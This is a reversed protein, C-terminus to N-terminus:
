RRDDVDGFFGNPLFNAKEGESLCNFASLSITSGVRPVPDMPPLPDISSSADTVHVLGTSAGSTACGVDGEGVTVVLTDNFRARKATATPDLPDKPSEEPASLEAAKKGAAVKENRPRKPSLCSGGLGRYKGLSNSPSGVYSYTMAESSAGAAMPLKKAPEVVDEQKYMVQSDVYQPGATLIMETKTAQDYTPKEEGERGDNEQGITGEPNERCIGNHPALEMGTERDERQRRSAKMKGLGKTHCSERPQLPETGGAFGNSEKGSDTQGVALVDTYDGREAM